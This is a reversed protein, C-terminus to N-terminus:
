SHDARAAEVQGTGARGFRSYLSRGLMAAVGLHKAVIVAVVVGSVVAASASAHSVVFPMMMHGGVAASGVPVVWWRM